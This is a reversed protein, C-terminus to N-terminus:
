KGAIRRLKRSEGGNRRNEEIERKQYIEREKLVSGAIKKEFLGPAIGGRIVLSVFNGSANGPCGRIGYGDRIVRVEFCSVRHHHKKRPENQRGYSNKRGPNQTREATKKKESPNKQPERKGSFL